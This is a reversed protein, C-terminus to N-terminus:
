LKMFGAFAVFVFSFASLGASALLLSRFGAKPLERHAAVLPLALLVFAPFLYRGQPNFSNVWSHFLSSLVVLVAGGGATCVLAGWQDRARRWLAYAGLCFFGASLLALCMALWIPGAITMYGYFGYASRLSTLIWGWDWLIQNLSVDNRIPAILNYRDPRKLASPKFSEGAFREALVVMKAAKTSSSGNQWFDWAHRPLAAFVCLAGVVLLRVFPKRLADERRVRLLWSVAAAALLALGGLRLLTGGPM